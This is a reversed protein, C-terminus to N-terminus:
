AVDGLAAARAKMQQGEIAPKKPPEVRHLMQVFLNFTLAVFAGFVFGIAAYAFPAMVAFLMGHDAAHVTSIFQPPVAGAALFLASLFPVIVVGLAGHVAASVLAIFWVNVLRSEKV